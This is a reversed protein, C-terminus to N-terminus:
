KFFLCIQKKETHLIQILFVQLYQQAINNVNTLILWSPYFTFYRPQDENCDELVTGWGYRKVDM